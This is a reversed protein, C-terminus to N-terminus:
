YGPNQPRLSPAKSMEIDPIPYLEDGNNLGPKTPALIEIVQSTRKLDFWRHGWETFLEVRRERLISMLLEERTKASTGSLGSRNRIIDLDSQSSNEGTLKNLM